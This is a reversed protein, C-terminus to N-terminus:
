NREIVKDNFLLIDKSKDKIGLYSSLTKFAEEANTLAVGVEVSTGDSLYLLFMNKNKIDVKSIRNKGIKKLLTVQASTFVLDGEQFVLSTTFPISTKISRKSEFYEGQTSIYSDPEMYMLPTKSQVQVFIDLPFNKSVVVSDLYPFASQLNNTLSKDDFFFFNQSHISSSNLFEAVEPNNSEYKLVNFYGKISLLLVGLLVFVIIYSFDKM